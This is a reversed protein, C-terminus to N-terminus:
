ELKNSNELATQQLFSQPSSDQQPSSPKENNENDEDNDENSALSAPEKRNFMQFLQWPWKILRWSGYLIVAMIVLAFVHYPKSFNVFTRVQDVGPYDGYLSLLYLLWDKFINTQDFFWGFIKPAYYATTFLAIFAILQLGIMALTRKFISAKVPILIWAFFWYMLTVLGIFLVMLEPKSLEIAFRILDPLGLWRTLNHFFNQLTELVPNLTGSYYWAWAILLAFAAGRTIAWHLGILLGNLMKRPQLLALMM